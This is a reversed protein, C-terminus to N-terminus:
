NRGAKSHYKDSIRSCCAFGLLREIKVRKQIFSDTPFGVLGRACISAVKEIKDRKQITKRPFGVLGRM